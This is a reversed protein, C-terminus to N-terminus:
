DAVTVLLRWGSALEPSLAASALRAEALARRVGDWSPGAQLAEPVALVLLGRPRMHRALDRWFTPDIYASPTADGDQFDVFVGDFVQSPARAAYRAADDVVVKLTAPARFFLRGLPEACPDNDVSVVEVGHAHLLRAAMGGGHGLVLVRRANEDAFLAVAKDVQPALNRGRPDMSTQTVGAKRYSVSGDSRDLTVEVEGSPTQTRHLPIM